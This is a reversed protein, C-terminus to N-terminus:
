SPKVILICGDPTKVIAGRRICPESTAIAPPLASTPLDDLLVAARDDGDFWAWREGAVELCDVLGSRFV